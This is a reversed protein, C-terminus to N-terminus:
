TFVLQLEDDGTQTGNLQLELDNTRITDRDGDGVGVIQVQPANVQVINGAVAGLTYTLLGENAGTLEAWPNFVTPDVQEPNISGSPARSTAVAGINGSPDNIDNKLTCEVGLDLSIAQVLLTSIGFFSFNVDLFPEPTLGFGPSPSLAGPSAVRTPEVYKGTFEFNLLVPQGKEATIEVTGCAGLIKKVISDGDDEIERIEITASPIGTSILDYTVSTAPVIVESFGAVQLPVSLHAPATGVVGSGKLETTFTISASREGPIQAVPSLVEKIIEREFFEVEASYELDFVPEILDAATPVADVGFSVELKMALQRRRVSFTNAM